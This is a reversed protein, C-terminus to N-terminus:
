LCRGDDAPHIGPEAAGPPLIETGMEKLAQLALQRHAEHLRLQGEYRAHVADNFDSDALMGAQDIVPIHRAAALPMIMKRYAKNYPLDRQWSGNPPFIVRVNVKHAQLYDFTQELYGVEVRMAERWDGEMKDTLDQIKYRDEQATPRVNWHPAFIARMFRTACDRERRVVREVPSIPARHMGKEFDYTFEGHRTFLGKVYVGTNPRTMQYSVGLFITTKEGGAELLNYEEVLMRIYNLVERHRFDGIAYDHILRREAYPLRWPIMANKIESAGIFYVGGRSFDDHPLEGLLTYDGDDTYAGGHMLMGGTERQYANESLIHNRLVPTTNALLVVMLITACIAALILLSLRL